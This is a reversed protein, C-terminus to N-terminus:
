GATEQKERGQILNRLRQLFHRTGTRGIDIREESGGGDLKEAIERIDGAAHARPYMDMLAVQARVAREVSDDDSIYGLPLLDYNLFRRAAFVIKDTINAAEVGSRVKNIILRIPVKYGARALVKVLAYADTIAPPEPTTVLMAMDAAVIFNTVSRSLGSSTDIMIVDTYKELVRFQNILHAFDAESLQTLEQLGSGGPLIVMGKPGEVLAELIHKHGNVVDTLTYRPALNLVIDVNATGLDGDIVCVKKGREILALALNVVTTTKGVGGKGSTVAWVPIHRGPTAGSGDTDTDDLRNEWQEPTTLVIYRDQGTQRASIWAKFEHTGDEAEIRVVVPTGVPLIVLKGQDVPVHVKVNDSEVAMVQTQYKKHFLPSEASITIERGPELLRWAELGPKGQMSFAGM